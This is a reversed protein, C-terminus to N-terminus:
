SRVNKETQIRDTMMGHILTMYVIIDGIKEDVMAQTPLGGKEILEIIDRVSQLHKVAFEWATSERENHLSIGTANEFNHFANGNAAYEAQKRRCTELLSNFLEEQHKQFESLNM